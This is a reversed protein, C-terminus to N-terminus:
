NRYPKRKHTHRHYLIMREQTYNTKTNIQKHENNLPKPPPTHASSRIYLSTPCHKTQRKFVVFIQQNRSKKTLKRDFVRYKTDPLSLPFYHTKPKDSINAKDHYLPRKLVLCESYFRHSESLNVVCASRRM